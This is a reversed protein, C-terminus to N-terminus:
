RKKGKRERKEICMKKHFEIRDGMSKIIRKKRERDASREKM